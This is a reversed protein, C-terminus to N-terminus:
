FVVHGSCKCLSCTQSLMPVSTFTALSLDYDLDFQLSKTAMTVSEHKHVLHKLLRHNIKQQDNNSLENQLMTSLSVLM